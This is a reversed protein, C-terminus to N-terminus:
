RHGLSEGEDNPDHVENVSAWASTNVERGM